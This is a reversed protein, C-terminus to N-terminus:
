ANESTEEGDHVMECIECLYVFPPLLDVREIKGKLNVVVREVVNKLLEKKQSHELTKYLIGLKTIHM